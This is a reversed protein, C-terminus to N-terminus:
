RSAWDMGREKLKLRAIGTRDSGDPRMKMLFYHGHVYDDIRYLIWRGDPSYSGAIAAHKAPHQQHTVQVMGTGDPSITMVNPTHGDPLDLYETFVIRSGDPAWDSKIGVDLTFPVIRRLGTGNRNVIFLAGGLLDPNRKVAFSIMSGDPSMNPDFAGAGPTPTIKHRDRGHLNMSWISIHQEDGCPSRVFILRRGSPTFSPETECDHRNGSLNRIGSGDANTLEINNGGKDFEFALQTGDPSWDEHFATPDHTDTLQRLHTGWESISFIWTMPDDGKNAYFAIRGNKGPYTASASGGTIAILGLVLGIMAVISFRCRHTRRARM